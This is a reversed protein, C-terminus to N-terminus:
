WPTVGNWDQNDPWDVTNSASPQGHCTTVTKEPYQGKAWWGFPFKGYYTRDYSTDVVDPDQPEGGSPGRGRHSYNICNTKM